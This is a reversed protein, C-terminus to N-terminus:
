VQESGLEQYLQLVELPSFDAPRAKQFDEQKQTSLETLQKSYRTKLNNWLTKRPQSFYQRLFMCFGELNEMAFGTKRMKIVLSDVKPVPFFNNKSVLMAKKLTFFLEALVRLSGFNKRSTKSSGIIRDAFEKQFMLLFFDYLNQNQLLKFFIPTSIQYPLNGVFGCKKKLPLKQWDLKLIDGSILQFNKYHSFKKELVESFRSDLEVAIVPINKQLLKETLAGSGAGIELISDPEEVFVLDAIKQLVSDNKLFHQGLKKSQKHKLIAKKLSHSNKFFFGHGV